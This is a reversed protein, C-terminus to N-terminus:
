SNQRDRNDHIRCNPGSDKDILHYSTKGGFRPLSLAEFNYTIITTDIQLKVPIKAAGSDLQRDFKLAITFTEVQIERGRSKVHSRIALRGDANHIPAGSTVLSTTSIVYM